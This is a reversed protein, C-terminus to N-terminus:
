KLLFESPYHKPLGSQKSFTNYFLDTFNTVWVQPPFLSVLTSNRDSLAGTVLAGFQKNNDNKLCQNSSGM